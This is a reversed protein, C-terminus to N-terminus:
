KVRKLNNWKDFDTIPHCTTEHDKAYWGKMFIKKCRVIAFYNNERNFGHKVMEYIGLGIIDAIFWQGPKIKM